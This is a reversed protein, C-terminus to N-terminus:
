NFCVMIASIECLGLAQAIVSMGMATGYQTINYPLYFFVTTSIDVPYYFLKNIRHADDVVIPWFTVISYCHGEMVNYTNDHSYKGTSNKFLKTDVYWKWINFSKGTPM